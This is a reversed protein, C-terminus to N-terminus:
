AGGLKKQYTLYDLTRDTDFDFSLQFVILKMVAVSDLPTWPDVRTLRVRAYEAPLPHSAVWANIGDAYAQLVARMPKSTAALSLEAARRLGILRLEIDQPLLTSGSIEAATGSAVHRLLDLQFLRDNAHLYGQMFAADHEDAAYVHPVGDADRLVTAQAHLGPLNMPAPVRAGVASMDVAQAAFSAFASVLLLSSVVRM